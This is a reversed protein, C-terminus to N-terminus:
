NRRKCKQICQKWKPSNTRYDDWLECKVLAKMAADRRNIDRKNKEHEILDKEMEAMKHKAAGLEALTNEWNVQCEALSKRNKELEISDKKMKAMEHKAVGLEVLTKEWNLQYEALIKLIQIAEAPFGKILDNHVSKLIEMKENYKESWDTSNLRSPVISFRKALLSSCSVLRHYLM